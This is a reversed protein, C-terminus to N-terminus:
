NNDRHCLIQEAFLDVVKTKGLISYSAYYRIILANIKKEVAM